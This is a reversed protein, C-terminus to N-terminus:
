APVCYESFFYACLQDFQNSYRYLGYKKNEFVYLKICMCDNVSKAKDGNMKLFRVREIMDLSISKMRKPKDIILRKDTLIYYVGKGNGRCVIKVSEGEECLSAAKEEEKKDAEINVPNADAKSSRYKIIAFGASVILGSIVVIFIPSM